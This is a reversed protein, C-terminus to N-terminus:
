QESAKGVENAKVPLEALLSGLSLMPIYWLALINNRLFFWAFLLIAAMLVSSAAAHGIRGWKRKAVLCVVYSSVVLLFSLPWIVM